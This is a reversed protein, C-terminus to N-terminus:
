TVAWVAAAAEVLPTMVIQKGAEELALALDFMGLGLGDDKEAVLASLWGAKIIEAWAEADIETGADRLARARRPGGRSAGLKAAADRLLVQEENLLLDMRDRRCISSASPSSIASSKSRAAELRSEACRSCTPLRTSRSM